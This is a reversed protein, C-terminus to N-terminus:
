PRKTKSFLCFLESERSGRDQNGTKDGCRWKKM